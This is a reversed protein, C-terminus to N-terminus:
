HGKGGGRAEARRAALAATARAHCPVCLTRLNDMTAEGGEVLPVIHDAQWLSQSAGAQRPSWGISVLLARYIWHWGAFRSTYGSRRCYDARRCGADALRDVARRVAAHDVGRREAMRRLVSRTRECDRGCSLCVGGDREAVYRRVDASGGKAILFERVCRDSCFTRRGKPCEALCRRCLPRGNPGRADRRYDPHEATRTRASM